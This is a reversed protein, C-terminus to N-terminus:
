CVVSRSQLTGLLQVHETSFEPWLNETPVDLFIAKVRKKMGSVDWFMMNTQNNSQEDMWVCFLKTQEGATCADTELLLLKTEKQDGATCARNGVGLLGDTEEQLM